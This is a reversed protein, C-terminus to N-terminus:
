IECDVLRKSKFLLFFTVTGREAKNEYRKPSILRPKFNLGINRIKSLGETHSIYRRGNEDIELRFQEINLHIHHDERGRM